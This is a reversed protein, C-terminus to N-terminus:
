KKRRILSLAGLGFLVLTAPEPTVLVQGSLREAFTSWGDYIGGWNAPSVGQYKPIISSEGPDGSWVWGHDIPGEGYLTLDPTSTFSLDGHYEAELGPIWNGTSDQSQMSELSVEAWSGNDIWGLCLNNSGWRNMYEIVISHWGNSLDLPLSTGIGNGVEDYSIVLENDIYVMAYDDAEIVYQMMTAKSSVVFVSLIITVVACITILWKM